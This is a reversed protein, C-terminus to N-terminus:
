GGARATIVWAASGMKVEGETAYPAIAETIAARVRERTAADADKLPQATPGLEMMFDAAEALSAGGGVSLQLELSHVNIGAWGANALIGSVREGDAFAFPGPATPDTPREITIHQMAAIMPLAMWPNAAISQWCVFVLRGGRKTARALNAFAAKPDDFFMVGFRSIVADMAASAFPHTQADACEFHAQGLGLSRAREAARALMPRSIDVGTAVGSSGVSRAADLTTAGCGCGVDLVHEGPKLRAAAIVADGFPRLQEDLVAELRVWKEGASGNWYDTMQANTGSSSATQM